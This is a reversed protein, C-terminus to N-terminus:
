VKYHDQSAKFFCSDVTEVNGLFKKSSDFCGISSYVDLVSLKSLLNVETVAFFEIQLRGATLQGCIYVLSLSRSEMRVRLETPKHTTKYVISSLYTCAKM